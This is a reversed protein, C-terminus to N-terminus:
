WVGRLSYRLAREVTRPSNYNPTDGNCLNYGRSDFIKIKKDEGNDNYNGTSVTLEACTSGGTPLFGRFQKIESNDSDILPHEADEVSTMSVNHDNCSINFSDSDRPMLNGNDDYNANRYVLCEIGSDAAYISFMSDRATSALIYQKRSVSLIFVAVGLVLAATLAAFLLTYGRNNYLKKM